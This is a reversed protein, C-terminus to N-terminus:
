DSLVLWWGSGGPDGNKQWANWVGEPGAWRATEETGTLPENFHVVVANGRKPEISLGTVVVFHAGSGPEYRRVLVDIIVPYGRRLQSKLLALATDPDHVIGSSVGTSYQRAINAMNEPSTFPYRRETFYGNAAATEIIDREALLSEPHLFNYAMAIAAEGCSTLAAQRIAPVNLLLPQRELDPPQAGARPGSADEPPFPLPGMLTIAAMLLLPFRATLMARARDMHSDAAAWVGPRAM